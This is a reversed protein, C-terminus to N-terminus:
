CLFLRLIGLKFYFPRGWRQASPLSHHVRGKNGPPDARLVACHPQYPVLGFASPTTIGHKHQRISTRRRHKQEAADDTRDSGAGVHKVDQAAAAESLGDTVLAEVVSGDALEPRVGEDQAFSGLETLEDDDDDDTIWMNVLGTAFLDKLVLTEIM